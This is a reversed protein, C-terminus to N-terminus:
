PYFDKLDTLGVQIYFVDPESKAWFGMALYGNFKGSTFPLKVQDIKELDKLIKAVFTRNSNDPYKVLPLILDIANSVYKRDTKLNITVQHAKPDPKGNKYESSYEFEMERCYKKFDASPDKWPFRVFSIEVEEDKQLKVGHDDSIESLSKGITETLNAKGFYIPGQINIAPYDLTTTTGNKNGCGIVFIILIFISTKQVLNLDRVEYNFM